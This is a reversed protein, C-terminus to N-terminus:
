PMIMGQKLNHLMGDFQPVVKVIGENFNEFKLDKLLDWLQDKLTDEVFPSSLYVDHYALYIKKWM